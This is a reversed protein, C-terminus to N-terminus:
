YSCITNGNMLFERAGQRQQQRMWKQAAPAFPITAEVTMCQTALQTYTPDDAAAREAYLAVIALSLAVALTFRKM